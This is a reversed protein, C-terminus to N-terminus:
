EVPCGPSSQGCASTTTLIQAAVALQGLSLGGDSPPVRVHRYSQFGDVRLREQVERTLLTNLFVGGSLAVATVGTTQRLRRCVNAIIEVLTTHFRRAICAGTAEAVVDQAVARILPRTDIVLTTQSPNGETAEVLDFPYSGDPPQDTALWELEVAAQGEYSVQLRVGALAAVADFLRGASSTPPAQVGRELMQEVM